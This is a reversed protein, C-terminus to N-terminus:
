IKESEIKSINRDEKSFEIGVLYIDKNENLYKEHYNKKKIQE